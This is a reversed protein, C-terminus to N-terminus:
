ISSLVFLTLQGEKDIHEEIFQVMALQLALKLFPQKILRSVPQMKVALVAEGQSRRTVTEDDANIIGIRKKQRPDAQPQNDSKVSSSRERTIPRKVSGRRSNRRSLTAGPNQEAFDAADQNEDGGSPFEVIYEAAGLEIATVFHTARFVHVFARCADIVKARQEAPDSSGNVHKDFSELVTAAPGSVPFELQECIWKWLRDEFDDFTDRGGSASRPTEPACDERYSITRNVVKQGVSKPTATLSRAIEGDVDVRVPSKSQTIASLMSKQLTTSSKIQNTYQNLAGGEETGILEDYVVRRVQFSTKNLWPKPNTADIGRGLGLDFSRAVDTADCAAGESPGAQSPPPSPTTMPGDGRDKSLTKFIKKM